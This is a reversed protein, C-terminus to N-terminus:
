TTARTTIVKEERGQKIIEQAEERYSGTTRARLITIASVIGIRFCSWRGRFHQDRGRLSARLQQLLSMAGGQTPKEAKHDVKHRM